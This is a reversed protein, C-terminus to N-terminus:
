RGFEFRVSDNAALTACGTSAEAPTVEGNTNGDFSTFTGGALRGVAVIQNGVPGSGQANIQALRVCTAEPMGLSAITFTAPPVGAGPAIAYTGGFENNITTGNVLNTPVGGAQILQAATLGAFSPAARYLSRIEAALGTINRTADNARQATNAQQFFVVGGIIVGLSISLFLVAEILTVGRKRAAGAMPMSVFKM